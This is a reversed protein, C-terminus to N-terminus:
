NIEKSQVNDKEWFGGVRERGENEAGRRCLLAPLLQWHLIFGNPHEKCSERRREGERM